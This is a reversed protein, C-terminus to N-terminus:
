SHRRDKPALEQYPTTRYPISIYRCMRCVKSLTLFTDICQSRSATSLVSFSFFSCSLLDHRFHVLTFDPIETNHRVDIVSFGRKCVPDYFFRAQECAAFHLRLNKIIHFQLSFPANRDFGLGHTGNILRLVSFLINKIQDIRGTMYIEIILYASTQCGAVSRDKNHVRRLPDFGLCQSVYIKCQIMIQIYKRHDILDIKGTRFRFPDHLLDLVHDTDFGM